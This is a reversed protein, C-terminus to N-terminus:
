NIPLKKFQIMYAPNQKIKRNHDIKSSLKDQIEKLKSDYTEFDETTHSDFWEQTNKYATTVKELEEESLKEKIKDNEVTNKLSYIYTELSNRSEITKINKEDEEKFKEADAVM